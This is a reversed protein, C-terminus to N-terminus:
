FVQSGRFSHWIPQHVQLAANFLLWNSVFGNLLPVGTISGAGILWLVM